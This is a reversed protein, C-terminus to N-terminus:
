FGDRGTGIGFSQGSRGLGFPTNFPFAKLRIFFGFQTGPRFGVPTDIVQFIAEACHLDYTFSFHRAEFQRLYGNYALLMSMKLRGAKFGDVYINANGWTHRIGDYRAGAAVFMSGSKWSFDIRTNSWVKSFTDYSSLTRLQVFDTPNWEFRTGISQWATEQQEELLFDYGTQAGITVRRLPEFSLDASALNSRGTRDFQLPSFGHAQLYNYRLNIGTRRGLSYRAATNYGLVYQATDDSYIGQRYRFDMDIGFRSQSRSPRSINLDFNGRSIREPGTNNFTQNGYEGVSLEANWPISEASRRGFLRAADSRFTFVPTRDPSSFFNTTDGIPISRQYELEATGKSFEHTGRLRVDLQSREVPTSGTFSSSNKSYTLDVSTRTKGFSRSDALSLTEFISRFDTSENSTRYLQMSTSAGSKQMINMAVRTNLLTNEPSTLYNQNQFNNQVTLELSGIRMQHSQDLTFTRQQGGVLGYARLYGMMERTEYQYDAGLGNGLKTFYDVKADLFSTRGKLQIPVKVKIYYGEDQSQGVEPLYRDSRDELPISLYPLKLIDNDLIRITVKRLIMRKGTRINASDSLLCFHPEDLNCSTLESNYAWIERQTGHATGGRLYVDDLTKGQLFSPRMQVDGDIAKFSREKFNVVVTQGKVVADAGIVRVDGRLTFIEEQTDGDMESAFLDYGKYVAHVGNTAKIRSNKGSWKGQLLRLEREEEGFPRPPPLDGERPPLGPFGKPELPNQTPGKPIVKYVTAMTTAIAMQQSWAVSVSLCLLVAAVAKM